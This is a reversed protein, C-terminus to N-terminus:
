SEEEAMEANESSGNGNGNTPLAFAAPMPSSLDDGEAVPPLGLRERAENQTLVPRGATLIQLAQAEELLNPQLAEVQEWDAVIEEGAALAFPHRNVDAHVTNVMPRITDTYLLARQERMNSRNVDKSDLLGMPVGFVNCIERRAADYYTSFEMDRPSDSARKWDAEEAQLVMTRGAKQGAFGEDIKSALARREEATMRVGGKIVMIGGVRGSNKLLGEHFANLAVLSRITPELEAIRSLYGIPDAPHPRVSRIVLAADIIQSRSTSSRFEYSEITSDESPVPRMRDTPEVWAQTPRIPDPDLVIHSAGLLAYQQYVRAWFVRSGDLPNPRGPSGGGFLQGLKSQAPELVDGNRRRYVVPVDSAADVIKDVCAMVPPCLKVLALYAAVDQEFPDLGRERGFFGLEKVLTAWVPNARSVDRRQWSVRNVLTRWLGLWWRRLSAPRAQAHGGTPQRM